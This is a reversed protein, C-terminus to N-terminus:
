KSSIDFDAFGQMWVTGKFRMGPLPEGLLDDANVCLDFELNNCNCKLVWIKEGSQTNFLQRAATINALVNYVDSESGFPIFTTEVISFLDERKIRESIIAYKDIDNMTLSEMAQIDGNRADEILKSKMENDLKSILKSYVRKQTPLIIKGSKALASMRVPVISSYNSEKSKEVYEAVNQLYFILSVGLRADDCMGTYANTDVKKHVFMEEVTSITRGTLYPFFHSYHFVGKEDEEGRVAVGIDEAFETRYEIIKCKENLYGVLRSDAHSLVHKILEESEAQTEIKSFGISRLFTHM